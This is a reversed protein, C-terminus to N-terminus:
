STERSPERLSLVSAGESPEAVFLFHSLPGPLTRRSFYGEEMAELMRGYRAEDALAVMCGGFGAGTLRAGAAGGRRALEVLEDLEPSSVEYDTRLSEHSADMLLGFTLLDGRRMAEEAEYVRVAETTVHRFRRLLNEPLHESAFEVLEGVPLRTLLHPYGLEEADQVDQERLATRVMALAERCSRNRQNYAEQAPGSKEARVLTHAVVFRWTPPVPSEHLQLPDFEIRTAHSARAGLSIAQDMGGGQTGTYREARAMEAAMELTPIHLDNAALLAQGVAIVLASSSSLGSAVPVSSSVLADMGQLSGLRRVLAQCPAKLYNGWDGSPDPHLHDSLEFQRPQFEPNQNRIRVAGDRRPRFLVRVEHQLAMPFVPLGNYDTHEGILNVRGPARSLHTPARGDFAAQFAESPKELGHDRWSGTM